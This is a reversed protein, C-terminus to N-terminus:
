RKVGRFIFKALVPFHDSYGGLYRKGGYTPFPAGKFSGSRTVIFDPKYVEFSDCIYSFNEDVMLSTSVIIQDLMNWNSRYMYSGEGKAYSSYSLNFLATSDETLNFDKQEGCIFPQAGLYKLISSNLPEDNFDGMILIKAYSNATLIKVVSNRLTKAAAKRNPESREEGGVRSPWHNIFTHITDVLNFLLNVNLILRTPWLDPLKVTDASISIVSFKTSDFILGVDIGRNDPSEAYATVYPKDSLFKAIMTDLLHQHEVECVGIIDPGKENNMSRIVRSLNYMKKDLREATWEKVGKPLFDEDNKAPDDVVDFLNELNWFAAVLTDNDIIKSFANGTLVFNLLILLLTFTFKTMLRVKM